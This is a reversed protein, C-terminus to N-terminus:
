IINEGAGHSYITKRAALFFPSSSIFKYYQVISLDASQQSRSDLFIDSKNLSEKQEHRSQSILFTELSLLWWNMKKHEICFSCCHGFHSCILLFLTGSVNNNAQVREFVILREFHNHVFHFSRRKLKCAIEIKTRWLFIKEHTKETWKWRAKHSHTSKIM